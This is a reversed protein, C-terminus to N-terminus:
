PGSLRQATARIVERKGPEEKEPEAEPAAPPPDEAPEPEKAEEQPPAAPTEAAPAEPLEEQDPQRIEEEAPAEQETREEPAAEEQKQEKIEEEAKQEVKPRKGLNDLDIKGVIKPGSTREERTKEQPKEEEKAAPREKEAPEEPGPQPKEPKAIGASSATNKILIEEQEYDEGATKAAKVEDISVDERRARGIHIQTAEEKYIKDTQYEKLLLHYLDEGIKTNPRAEVPHGKDDLFDAITTISVNLEKAVKLLQYTKKDESM